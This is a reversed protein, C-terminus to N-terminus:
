PANKGEISGMNPGVAADWWQDDVATVPVTPTAHTTFKSWPNTKSSPLLTGSNTRATRPPRGHLQTVPSWAGARGDTRAFCDCVALAPSSSHALGRDATADGPHTRAQTQTARSEGEVDADAPVDYCPPLLVALHRRRAREASDRRRAADRSVPQETARPVARAIRRPFLGNSGQTETRGPADIRALTHYDAALVDFLDDRILLDRVRDACAFEVVLTVNEVPPPSPQLSGSRPECRRGQTVLTVKERVVGLLRDRSPAHGAGAPRLEDAVAPPLAAPWLTLSYRVSGRDIAIAAYGTSGGTHAFAPSGAAALVLGAVLLGRATM